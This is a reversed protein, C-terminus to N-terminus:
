EFRDIASVLVKATLSLLNNHSFRRRNRDRYADVRAKTVGWRLSSAEKDRKLGEYVMALIEMADITGPHKEGLSDLERLPARSRSFPNLRGYLITLNGISGITYFKREGLTKRYVEVAKMGYQLAVDLQDMYAYITGLKVFQFHHM